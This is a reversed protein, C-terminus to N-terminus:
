DKRRQFPEYETCKCKLKLSVVEEELTETVRDYKRIPMGKTKKLSIEMCATATSGSALSSTRTSADDATDNLLNVDDAYELKSVRPCNIEPGGIGECKM